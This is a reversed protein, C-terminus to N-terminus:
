PEDDGEDQHEDDERPRPRPRPFRPEQERADEDGWSPAGEAEALTRMAGEGIGDGYPVIEIDRATVLIQGGHMSGVFDAVKDLVENVFGHENGVAAVGVVSRQWLDNEAVESISVNFKARVRDLASRILHRKSKLSGPEPLHLTLRLVGVFM